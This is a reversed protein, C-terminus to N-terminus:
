WGRKRRKFLVFSAILFVIESRDINEAITGEGYNDVKGIEEGTSRNYITGELSISYKGEKSGSMVVKDDELVIYFTEEEDGRDPDKLIKIRKRKYDVILWYSEMNTLVISYLLTLSYVFGNLSDVGIMGDKRYEVKLM